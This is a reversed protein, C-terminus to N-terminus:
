TDALKIFIAYTENRSSDGLVTCSSIGGFSFRVKVNSVDTVDLIASNYSALRAGNGKPGVFGMTQNVYSSNNITTAITFTMDQNSTDGTTVGASAQILWYGTAPFSFTGSSETVASGLTGYGATDNVEWNVVPDVDSTFDSTMRFLTANEIGGGAAAWTLGGTNGSQKSLFQGNSGANSIQMKAENVSENVLKAQSVTNDSPTGIDNVHGLFYIFDIVDASTLASNFVINTGSITFASTPAQVVGNLSVICHNVSEPTFAVSGVTLAYTATSSTTIADAVSFNGIVPEKGIYSM